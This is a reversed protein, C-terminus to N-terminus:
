CTLTIVTSSVLCYQTYSRKIKSQYDHTFHTKIQPRPKDCLCVYSCVIGKSTPPRARTSRTAQSRPPVHPSSNAKLKKSAVAVYDEGDGSDEDMEDESWRLTSSVGEFILRFM